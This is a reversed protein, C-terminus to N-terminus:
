KKFRVRKNMFNKIKYDNIVEKSAPLKRKTKELSIGFGLRIKRKM